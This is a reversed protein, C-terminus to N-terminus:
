GDPNVIEIKVTDNHNYNDIEQKDTQNLIQKSLWIQMTSNGDEATKMQMRRLSLMGTAQGREVAQAFEEDDALRRQLTKTSINFYAAIEKHTCNLACLRELNDLNFEIKERAM